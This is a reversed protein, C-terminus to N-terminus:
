PNGVRPIPTPPKREIERKIFQKKQIVRKPKEVVPSPTRIPLPSSVKGVTFQPTPLRPSMVLSLPSDIYFCILIDLM